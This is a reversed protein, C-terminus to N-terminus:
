DGEEIEMLGYTPNYNEDLERSLQVEYLKGNYKVFNCNGLIEQSPYENTIFGVLKGQERIYNFIKKDYENFFFGNIIKSRRCLKKLIYKTKIIGYFVLFNLTGIRTIDIDM